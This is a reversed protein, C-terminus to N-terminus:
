DGDNDQYSIQVALASTLEYKILPVMMQLNSYATEVLPKNSVLSQSLPAPIASLSSAILQFQDNIADALLDGNAAKTQLCAMYEYLGVGNSGNSGNGEYMEKFAMLQREALV